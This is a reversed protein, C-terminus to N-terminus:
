VPASPAGQELGMLSAVSVAGGTAASLRQAAAKDDIPENRLARSVTQFSSEASRVLWAKGGRGPRHAELWQALTMGQNYFRPQLM